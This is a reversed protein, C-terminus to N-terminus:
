ENDEEEDDYDEYEESEAGFVQPAAKTSFAIFLGWFCNYLVASIVRNILIWIPSFLMKRSMDMLASIEEPSADTDVMKVMKQQTMVVLDAYLDPFLWNAAIFHYVGEIIGVFIGMATIFGLSQGYSYGEEPFMAARQSTFRHILYIAIVFQAIGLLFSMGQMVSALFTCLVISLGLWCGSISAHQWFPIKKAIKM